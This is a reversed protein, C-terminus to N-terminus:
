EDHFSLYRSQYFYIVAGDRFRYHLVQMDLDLHDGIYFDEEIGFHCEAKDEASVQKRTCYSDFVDRLFWLPHVMIRSASGTKAINVVKIMIRDSWQPGYGFFVRGFEKFGLDVLSSDLDLLRGSAGAGMIFYSNDVVWHDLSEDMCYTEFVCRLPESGNKVIYKKDRGYRQRVSIALADVYEKFGFLLEDSDVIISTALTQDLDMINGEFRLCTRSAVYTPLGIISCTTSWIQRLSTSSSIKINALEGTSYRRVRINVLSCPEEFSSNGGHSSHFQAEAEEPWLLEEMELM